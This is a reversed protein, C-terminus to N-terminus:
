KAKEFNIYYNTLFDREAAPAYRALYIKTLWSFINDYYDLKSANEGIKTVAVCVPTSADMKQVYVFFEKGSPDACFGKNEPEYWTFWNAPIASSYSRALLVARHNYSSTKDKRLAETTENISEATSKIFSIGVEAPSATKVPEGFGIGQPARASTMTESPSETKHTACATILLVALLYLFPKM